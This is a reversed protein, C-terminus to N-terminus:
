QFAERMQQKIADFKRISSKRNGNSSFRLKVYCNNVVGVTLFDNTVLAGQPEFFIEYEVQIVSPFDGTEKINVPREQDIKTGDEMQAFSLLRQRMVDTGAQTAEKIVHPERIKRRRQDYFFLTAWSKGIKGFQLAYGAGRRDKEYNNSDTLSLGGLQRPAASYLSQCQKLDAFAPAALCSLAGLCTFLKKM